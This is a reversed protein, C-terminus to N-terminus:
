MHPMKDNRLDSRLSMFRIKSLIGHNVRLRPWFNKAKVREQSETQIPYHPANIPRPELKANRVELTGQSQYPDTISRTVQADKSQQDRLLDEPLLEIHCTDGDALRITNACQPTTAICAPAIGVKERHEPLSSTQAEGAEFSTSRPCHKEPTDTAVHAEVLASSYFQEELVASSDSVLISMNPEKLGNKHEKAGECSSTYSFPCVKSRCGGEEKSEYNEKERRCESEEGGLDELELTTREEESLLEEKEHEAGADTQCKAASNKHFSASDKKIDRDVKWIKEQTVWQKTRLQPTREKTNTITNLSQQNPNEAKTQLMEEPKITKKFSTFTEPSKASRCFDKKNGQKVGQSFTTEKCIPSKILAVKQRSNQSDKFPVQRTMTGNNFNSCFSDLALSCSGYVLRLVLNWLCCILIETAAYTFVPILYFIKIAYDSISRGQVRSDMQNSFLLQDNTVDYQSIDYAILYMTRAREEAHSAKVRTM